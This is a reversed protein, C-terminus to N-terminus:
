APTLSRSAKCPLHGYIVHARLLCHNGLLVESRHSLLNCSGYHSLSHHRECRRWHQKQFCTLSRTSTKLLLDMQAASQSASIPVVITLVRRLLVKLIRAEKQKARMVSFRHHRSARLLAITSVREFHTDVPHMTSRQSQPTHDRYDLRL